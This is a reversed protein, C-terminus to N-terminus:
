AHAGASSAGKALAAAALRTADDDRGLRRYCMSLVCLSAREGPLDRAERTRALAELCSRVAPELEGSAIAVLASTLTLRATKRPADAESERLRDLLAAAGSRDGKVLLTVTRLRDVNRGERGAAVLLEIAREVEDFDRALLAQVARTSAEAVLGHALGPAAIALSAPPLEGSDRQPQGASPAALGLAAKLPPPQRETLREAIQAARARTQEGGDCEVAAAALRVGSRLFGLEGSRAAVELFISAAEERRGCQALYYALTARAFGHELGIRSSLADAVFRHLEPGRAPAMTAQVVQRLVASLGVGRADVKALGLVELEEIARLWTDELLGDAAAVERTLDRDDPDPVVALVELARRLPASLSDVREEILAEVSMTDLRGAPGRRWRFTGQEFVADGSSVLVRVAEAVALPNGGGMAAARRALDDPPDTGLMSAALARAEPQSLGRVRIESLGGGRAFAEPPKSELLLRMIVLADPGGERAAEAVVGVTSPDIMSTPDVTLLPRRGAEGARAVYQRLALVADRRSVARGGRIALLTALAAQDSEEGPRLVREPSGPAPLRRLAYMLGSLPALSAGLARVDLWLPPALEDALRMLWQGIGIGHPGILLVRHRGAQRALRGLAEFQAKGNSAFPPRSLHALARVCDSRRPFERDLVAGTLGLGFTEERAFLFVGSAASQAATDLLLEHTDAVNALAQARDIADGLWGGPPPAQEVPGVAIGCAVGGSVEEREADRIALLCLEVARLLQSPALSFAATGGLQVLLEADIKRFREQAAVRWQAGLAVADRSSEPACSWRHWVIVREM